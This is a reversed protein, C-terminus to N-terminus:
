WPNQKHPARILQCRATDMFSRWYSAAITEDKSVKNWRPFNGAQSFQLRPSDWATITLTILKCERLKHMQLLSVLMFCFIAIFWVDIVGRYSKILCPQNLHFQWKYIANYNPLRNYDRSFKTRVHIASKGTFFILRADDAEGDPALSANLLFVPQISDGGAKDLMANRKWNGSRSRFLINGLCYEIVSTM